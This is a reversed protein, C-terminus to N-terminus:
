AEALRVEFTGACIADSVEGITACWDDLATEIASERDDAEYEGSLVAPDYEGSLVAPDCMVVFKPVQM